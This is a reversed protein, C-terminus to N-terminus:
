VTSKVIELIKRIRNEQNPKTFYNGEDDRSILGADLLLCLVADIRDAMWAPQHVKRVYMEFGDDGLGFHHHLRGDFKRLATYIHQSIVYERIIFEILNILSSDIRERLDKYTTFLSLAYRGGERVLDKNLEDGLWPLTRITTILLLVLSTIPICEYLKDRILGEISEKIEYESLAVGIAINKNSEQINMERVNDPNLDEGNIFCIEESIDKLLKGLKDEKIDWNKFRGLIATGKTSASIIKLFEDVTKIRGYSLLGEFSTLIAEIAYRQFQRLMFIQFKQLASTFEQSINFSEGNDSYGYTLFKRLGWSNIPGLKDVLELFLSLTTRRNCHELKMKKEFGIQFLVETLIEREKTSRKRIGSISFATKCIEVAQEENFNEIGEEEFIHYFKSKRLIRDFAEALLKGKEHTPVLINSSDDPRLLGLGSNEKLSPGYLAAYLVSTNWTRNYKSFEVPFIDTDKPFSDSGIITSIFNQEEKTIVNGVMFISEVLDFFFRFENWSVYERGKTKALELFKWSAWTAMSYYRLHKTTNTIGPLLESIYRLNVVRLGLPDIGTFKFSDESNFRPLESLNELESWQYAGEIM